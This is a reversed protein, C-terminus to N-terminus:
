KKWSKILEEYSATMYISSVHGVKDLETSSESLCILVGVM